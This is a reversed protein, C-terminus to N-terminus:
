RRMAEQLADKARQKDWYSGEAPEVSGFGTASKWIGYYWGGVASQMVAGLRGGLYYPAIPTDADSRPFGYANLKQGLLFMAEDKNKAPSSEFVGFEPYDVDVRYTRTKPDLTVQGSSYATKGDAILLIESGPEAPDEIPMPAPLEYEGPEIPGVPAYRRRVNRWRLFGLGAVTAILGAILTTKTKKKM